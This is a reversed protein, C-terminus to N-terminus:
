SPHGKAPIASWGLPRRGGSTDQQSRSAFLPAGDPRGEMQIPDSRVGEPLGQGREQVSPPMEARSRRQGARDRAPRRSAPRTCPGYLRAYPLPPHTPCPSGSIGASVVRQVIAAVKPAAKKVETNAWYRNTGQSSGSLFDVELPVSLLPLEGFPKSRDGKGAKIGAQRPGTCLDGAKTPQMVQALACASTGIISSKSEVM